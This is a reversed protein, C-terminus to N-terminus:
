FLTVKNAVKARAIFRWYINIFVAIDAMFYYFVFEEFHRGNQGPKFMNLVSSECPFLIMMNALWSIADVNCCM